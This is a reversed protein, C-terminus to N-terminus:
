EAPYITAVDKGIRAKVRIRRPPKRIGKAWIARNLSVDLKIEKKLHQKLKEKLVKIAASGRRTRPARWADRLPITMVKEEFKEEPKKKDEKKEPAKKAEAKPAEAKKAEPAKAPEAAKPAESPKAAKAKEDKEKEKMREKLKQVTSEKEEGAM